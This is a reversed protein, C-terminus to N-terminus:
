MGFSPTDAEIHEMCDSTAVCSAFLWMLLNTTLIGSLYEHLNLM